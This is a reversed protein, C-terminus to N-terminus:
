SSGRLAYRRFPVVALRAPAWYLFARHDFEAVSTGDGITVQALRTPNSLDRVDFLSLQTGLEDGTETADQGVGLLLDDGVPHLYASYGLVKLEGKLAPAAPN